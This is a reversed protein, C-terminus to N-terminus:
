SLTNVGKVAAPQAAEPRTSPVTGKGEFEAEARRLIYELNPLRNACVRDAARRCAEGINIQGNKLQEAIVDM